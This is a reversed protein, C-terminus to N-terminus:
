NGHGLERMAFTSERKGAFGRRELLQFGTNKLARKLAGTAAYTSFVCTKACIKNFVSSMTEEMWLEPSMKNSFADYLVCSVDSVGDVHELFTGRMQWTNKLHATKLWQLIIEAKLNTENALQRLIHDYLHGFQANRGNLWKALEDILLPELEFSFIRADEPAIGYQIAKAATIMENYGLGLGLSVVHLPWGRKLTEELADGYIYLSESLAGESHHMKEFYGSADVVRLSPSGDTTFIVEFDAVTRARAM